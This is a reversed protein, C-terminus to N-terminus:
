KRLVDWSRLLDFIKQSLHKSHIFVFSYRHHVQYIMTIDFLIWLFLRCDHGLITQNLWKSATLAVHRSVLDNCFGTDTWLYRVHKWLFRLFFHDGLLTLFIVEGLLHVFLILLNIHVKLHLFYVFDHSVFSVNRNKEIDLAIIEKCVGGINKRFNFKM